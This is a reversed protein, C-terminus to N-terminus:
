FAVGRASKSIKSCITGSVFNERMSQKNLISNFIDNLKLYKEMQKLQKWIHTRYM